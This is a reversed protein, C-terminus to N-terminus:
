LFSRRPPPAQSDIESWYKKQNQMFAIESKQWFRVAGKSEINPQLKGMYTIIEGMPLDSHKLALYSTFDEKELIAGFQEPNKKADRVSFGVIVASKARAVGEVVCFFPAIDGVQFIEDQSINSEVADWGLVEYGGENYFPVFEKITHDSSQEPVFHTNARRDTPRYLAVLFRSASCPRLFAAIQYFQGTM